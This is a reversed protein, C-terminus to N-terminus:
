NRMTEPFGKKAIELSKSSYKTIKFCKTVRCNQKPLLLFITKKWDLLYPKNNNNNNYNNNIIIRNFSLNPFPPIFKTKTTGVCKIGTGNLASSNQRSRTGGWVRGSGLYLCANLIKITPYVAMDCSFLLTTFEKFIPYQLIAKLSNNKFWVVTYDTRSLGNRIFWMVLQLCPCLNM